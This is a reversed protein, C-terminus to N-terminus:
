KRFSGPFVFDLDFDYLGTQLVFRGKGKDSFSADKAAFAFLVQNGAFSLLYERVSLYGILSVWFDVEVLFL